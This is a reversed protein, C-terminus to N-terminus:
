RANRRSGAAALIAGFVEPDDIETFEGTLGAFILRRRRGGTEELVIGYTPTRGAPSCSISVQGVGMRRGRVHLEAIAVNGPLALPESGLERGEADTRSLRGTSLDVVLRAPRNHALAWQRTVHDFQRVQDVVDDTRANRMPGAIRLAAAAAGIGLILLVVTLEILSFANRRLSM